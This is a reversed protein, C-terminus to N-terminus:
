ALADLLYHVAAKTGTRSPNVVDQKGSVVYEHFADKVYPSPNPQGCLRSANSENETFLLEPAGEFQLTYDGLEPHSLKNDKAASGTRVSDAQIKIDLSGTSGDTSTFALTADWKEFTGEIPISAKVNFRVRSIEPTIKYTPAGQSSQAETLHFLILIAVLSLGIRSVLERTKKV